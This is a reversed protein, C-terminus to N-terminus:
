DFQVVSNCVNTLACCVRIMRDILPIDEGVRKTVFHIPLTGQLITYKQRLLGIVREVHIRVNAINRTEEIELASLQSKGKTFAPIHLKAQQVGVSEAIDFGRDALVIDGPLLRSLIGSHETIYKDSVRGGWGESVFAVSGQPVIGILVKVTNKHKYNSWTYARAQLNSPRELFIEFCDVIIAVKKAFSEQFCEPMTKRLSERDPWIILGQLRIDMQILWKLIIRSVTAKSIDFRYALDQIPSNLRLKLLTCMFEQFPTLKCTAEMPMIEIVHDFITKLVKINPLGTYFVVSEDSKFSEESFPPLQLKLKASLNEITTHCRALDENLGKIQNSCKCKGEALKIIELEMEESVTEKVNLEVYEEVFREAVAVVAAERLVAEDVVEKIVKETEEVVVSGIEKMTVIEAQQFLLIDDQEKLASEQTRRKAREYRSVSGAQDKKLKAHGLNLTPLWDPNTYDYLNKTPEGLIFHRSCIRYHQGNFDIDARSIATFFGERRKKSLEFDRKDTHRIVAPIRYFSVDKDRDSRKSCGIVVCLVM